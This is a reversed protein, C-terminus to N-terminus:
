NTPWLHSKRENSNHLMPRERNIRRAEPDGAKAARLLWAQGQQENQKIGDGALLCKGYERMAAPLNNRAARAFWYAAAGPDRVLLVGQRYTEGLLYQARPEEAKAADQLLAIGQQRDQVAGIGDLLCVALRYMGAPDKKEAAKRYLEAAKVVNQRVAKGSWYFDGLRSQARAIGADAAKQLYAFAKAEDPTIGIGYELLHALECMAEKDGSDAAEQLLQANKEPDPSVGVGNRYCEALLRKATNDGANAAAQLNRFAEQTDEATRMAPPRALLMKALSRQAPIIQQAALKRFLAMAQEPDANIGPVTRDAFHEEPLGTQLIEACRLQAQVLGGDAAKRYAHYAAIRSKEAGIGHEQCIGLNYYAPINGKEAAKRFWYVAVEPNKLRLATGAYYELGLRFAADADGRAAADRLADSGASCLPSVALWLLIKTLM